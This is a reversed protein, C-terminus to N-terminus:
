ENKIGEKYKTENEQLIAKSEEIQIKLSDRKALLAKSEEWTRFGTYLFGVFTCAAAILFVKWYKKIFRFESVDEKLIVMEANVVKIANTNPCLIYHQQDKTQISDVIHSLEKVSLDLRDTAEDSADIREHLRLFKEEMYKVFYVQFDTTPPPIDGAQNKPKQKLAM